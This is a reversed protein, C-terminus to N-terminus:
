SPLRATAMPGIGRAQTFLFLAFLVAGLFIWIWSRPVFGDDINRDLGGSAMRAVRLLGLPAVGLTLFEQLASRLPEPQWAFGSVIASAAAAAYALRISQARPGGRERVFTSFWRVVLVYGGLGVVAAVPRWIGPQSQLMWYWDDHTTTLSEFTLQGTFWLLNLAGFLLFFLRAPSRLNAYALLAAAMLGAALNGIPGGADTIPAWKSCRFWISTLLTIHGGAAACGLGHGVAEHCVDALTAALVGVAIVTAMDQSSSATLSTASM